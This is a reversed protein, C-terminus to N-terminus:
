VHNRLMLEKPHPNLYVQDRINDLQFKNLYHKILTIPVILPVLRKHYDTIVELLEKKEESTLYKAKAMDVMERKENFILFVDGDDRFVFVNNILIINKILIDAVAVIGDTKEPVISNVFYFNECSVVFNSM